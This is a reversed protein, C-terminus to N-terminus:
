TLRQQIKLEAIKTAIGVNRVFSRFDGTFFCAKFTLFLPM